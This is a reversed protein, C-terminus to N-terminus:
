RTHDAILQELWEKESTLTEAALKYSNSMILFKQPELRVDDPISSNKEFFEIQESMRAVAEKLVNVSELTQAREKKRAIVQDKPERPFFYTGDNPMVDDTDM